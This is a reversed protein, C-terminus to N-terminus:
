RASITDAHLLEEELTWVGFQTEKGWCAFPILRWSSATEGKERRKGGRRKRKENERGRGGEKGRM